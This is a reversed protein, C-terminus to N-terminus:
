RPLHIPHVPKSRLPRSTSVGGPTPPFQFVNFNGYVDGEFLLGDAITPPAFFDGSNAYDVNGTAANVVWLGAPGPYDFTPSVIEGNALALAALPVGAMGREWVYHGTAPDIARLSGAYSQGGITTNGGAYYLYTGDFVGTSVPGQGCEPCAGGVSIQDSWVPGAGLNNRDFAYLYGNKNAAAVLQRNQSDTLLTPTTGWDFDGCTPNCDPVQWHAKPALTTADLAVISGSYTQSASTGNGTTVFITNTSPDVVPTTWISGGVEGDPVVKFVADVQHTSLNISLLEGQILPDDCLSATGIYAHGNYIVPSSWNYSGASTDTPVSWLVAGTNPNLADFNTTGDGLYLVGSAPDIAPASTVGATSPGLPQDYCSTRQGLNTAWKLNGSEDFAREYGDWSGIYVTRNAVVARAAYPWSDYTAFWPETLQGSTSQPPTNFTADVGCSTNVGPEQACLTYHYTTVPALGSVPASVSHWNQDSITITQQPTTGGYATTTGYRFWYHITANDSSSVSGNLTATGATVQTATSSVASACGSLVM